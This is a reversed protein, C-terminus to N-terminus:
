IKTANSLNNNLTNAAKPELLPTILDLIAQAAVKAANLAAVYTGQDGNARYAILAAQANAAAQRYVANAASVKADIAPSTKGAVSLAAWQKMASETVSTMTIVSQYFTSCGFVVLIPLILLLNTIRKM